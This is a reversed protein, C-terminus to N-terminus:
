VRIGVFDFFLIQPGSVRQVYVRSAVFSMIYTPMSLDRFYIIGVANM